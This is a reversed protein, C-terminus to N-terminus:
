RSLKYEGDWVPGLLGKCPHTPHPEGGGFHVERKGRLLTSAHETAQRLSSVEAALLKAKRPEQPATAEKSAIDRQMKDIRAQIKHAAVESRRLNGSVEELESVAKAFEQRDIVGDGNSDIAKLLFPLTLPLTYERTVRVLTCRCFSLTPLM